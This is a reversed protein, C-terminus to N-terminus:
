VIEHWILILVADTTYLGNTMLALPSVTIEADAASVSFCGADMTEM